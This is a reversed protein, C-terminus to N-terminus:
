PDILKHLFGRFVKTLTGVEIAEQQMDENQMCMLDVLGPISRICRRVMDVAKVQAELKTEDLKKEAMKFAAIDIM